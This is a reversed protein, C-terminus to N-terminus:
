PNFTLRKKVFNRMNEFVRDNADIPESCFKNACVYLKPEEHVPYKLKSIREADEEPDLIEIIKNPEYFRLVEGHLRKTLEDNKPGVIVLNVPYMYMDAADAYSCAFIGYSGYVESFNLLTREAM